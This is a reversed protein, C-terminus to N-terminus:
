GYCFIDSSKLFRYLINILNCYIKMIRVVIITFCISDM